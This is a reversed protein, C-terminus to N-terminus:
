MEMIKNFLPLQKKLYIISHLKRLFYRSFLLSIVLGVAGAAVDIFQAAKDPDQECAPKELSKLGSCKGYIKRLVKLTYISFINM